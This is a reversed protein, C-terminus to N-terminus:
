RLHQHLHYCHYVLWCWVENLLQGCLSLLCNFPLRLRFHVDWQVVRFLKSPTKPIAEGKDPLCHNGPVPALVVSDAPFALTHSLYCGICFLDEESCLYRPFATSNQPWIEFGWLSFWLTKQILGPQTQRLKQLAVGTHICPFDHSYFHHFNCLLVRLHRERLWIFALNFHHHYQDRVARM